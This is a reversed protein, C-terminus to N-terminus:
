YRRLLPDQSQQTAPAVAESDIASKRNVALPIELLLPFENGGRDQGDVSYALKGYMERLTPDLFEVRVEYLEFPRGREDRMEKWRPDMPGMSLVKVPPDYPNVLGRDEKAKNDEFMSTGRKVADMPWTGICVHSQGDKHLYYAEYGMRRAERVSEVAAQKSEAHGAYTAVMLTWHGKANHLDWEPPAAPDPRDLPEFVTRPFIKAQRENVLSELRQRDRGAREAERKDVSPDFTSYFGHYLVTRTEGRVLFFDKLGSVEEVQKKVREAVAAHNPGTFDRCYITFSAERPASVSVQATEGSESFGQPVVAQNGGGGGSGNCGALFLACTLLCGWRM